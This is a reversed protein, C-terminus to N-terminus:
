LGHMTRCGLKLLHEHKAQAIRAEVSYLEPFRDARVAWEIGRTSPALLWEAGRGLARAGASMAARVAGRPPTRRTGSKEQGELRGYPGAM